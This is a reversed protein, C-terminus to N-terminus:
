QHLLHREHLVLVNPLASAVLRSLSSHLSRTTESTASLVAALSGIRWSMSLLLHRRLRHNLHGLLLNLSWLNNDSTRALWQGIQIRCDGIVVKFTMAEDRCHSGVVLVHLVHDAVEDVLVDLLDHTVLEDALDSAHDQVEREFLDLSDEVVVVVKEMLDFLCISEEHALHLLM